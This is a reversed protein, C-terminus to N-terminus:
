VAVGFLGFLGGSVGDTLIGAAFGGLTAALLNGDLAHFILAVLFVDFAVSFNPYIQVGVLHVVLAVTLAGSFKLFRM